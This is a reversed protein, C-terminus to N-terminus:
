RIVKLRKIITRLLQYYTLLDISIVAEGKENCLACLEYFSCKMAQLAEREAKTIVRKTHLIQFAEEPTNISTDYNQQIYEQLFQETKQYCCTMNALLNHKDCTPRSSDDKKASSSNKNRFLQMWRDADQYAKNKLQEFSQDITAVLM